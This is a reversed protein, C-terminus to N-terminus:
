IVNRVSVLFIPLFCFNEIPFPYSFAKCLNKSFRVYVKIFGGGGWTRERVSKAEGGGGRESRVYKKFPGKILIYNKKVKYSAM